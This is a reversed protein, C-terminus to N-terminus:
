HVIAYNISNVFHYLFYFNQNCCFLNKNMESQRDLVRNFYEDNCISKYYIFPYVHGISGVDAGVGAGLGLGVDLGVFNGVELGVGDGM